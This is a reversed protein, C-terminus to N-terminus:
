EYFQLGSIMQEVFFVPACNNVKIENNIVVIATIAIYLMHAGASTRQFVFGEVPLM